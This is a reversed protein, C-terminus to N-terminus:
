CSIFFYNNFFEVSVSSSLKNNNGNINLLNRSRPSKPSNPMRSVPSMPPSHLSPPSKSRMHNSSNTNTQSNNTTNVHYGNNNGINNISNNQNVNYQPPQQKQQESLNFPVNSNSGSSLYAAKHRAGSSGNSIDKLIFTELNFSFFVPRIKLGLFIFM